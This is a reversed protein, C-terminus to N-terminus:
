SSLAPMLLTEYLELMRQAIVAPSYQEEAKKRGTQGFMRAREPDRELHVLADALGSIDCPKALLGTVGNEVLEPAAGARVGVVPKGAAMAEIFIRGFHEGPTPHLIIDMAAMAEGADRQWPVFLVSGIAERKALAELAKREPGDGVLVLQLRSEEKSAQGAARIADDFRKWRDMRGFVGVCVRDDAIGARRRWATGDRKPHFQALDVPNPILTIKERAKRLGFRGAVYQSTVVLRSSVASQWCDALMERDAIRVHWIVELGLLRAALAPLVLVRGAANAHVLDVHADLMWRALNRVAGNAIGIATSPLPLIQVVIGLSRVQEAFEGEKPCVVVPSVRTRDLHRLLTLLSLEGGGAIDGTPSFFAVTWPQGHRHKVVSVREQTVVAASAHERRHVQRARQWGKILATLWQKPHAAALMAVSLPGVRASHRLTFLWRHSARYGEIVSGPRRRSMTGGPSHHVRSNPELLVKWGRNRARACCDVDEWYIPAFLEDYGGLERFHAAHYAAHGGTAFAIPVAQAPLEIALYRVGLLGAHNTFAPVTLPRREVDLSAVAFIDAAEFHPLIARFVDREVSVDSNLFYIIPHQAHAVGTRIGASFGQNREHRIVRAWPHAEALWQGTGDTSADDVLILESPADVCQMAARVSPLNKELLHRSNWCPIIISLGSVM